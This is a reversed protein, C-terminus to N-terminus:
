RITIKSDRKSPYAAVQLEDEYLINALRQCKHVEVHYSHQRLLFVLEWIQRISETASSKFWFIARNADFGRPPHPLNANFWDLHQRLRKWEEKSIDDSNLLAYSAAFVGEPKGSDKHTRTTVFRLHM